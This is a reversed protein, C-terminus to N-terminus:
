RLGVAEQVRHLTADAVLHVRAASEALVRYLDAEDSRLAEYRHQIPALTDVIAEAVATKLVGTKGEFEHLAAEGSVGTLAAYIDLLNAVGPGVPDHVAPETDTTARAIKRRVTDPPDLLMVTGGPPTVKIQIHNRLYAWDGLIRLERIESSGEMKMGSMAKSSAAFAQKGFPERGPVMFIVDDTMLDLVTTVDGAKSATMWTDVLKRIAQEDNDM